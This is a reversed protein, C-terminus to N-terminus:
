GSPTKSRHRQCQTYEVSYNRRYNPQRHPSTSAGAHRPSSQAQQSQDEDHLRDEVRHRRLDASRGMECSRDPPEHQGADRPHGDERAGRVEDRQKESDLQQRNRQVHHARDVQVAADDAQALGNAGPFLGFLNDFSRNEEFIIVIHAIKALKAESTQAGAPHGGLLASVFAAVLTSHRLHM